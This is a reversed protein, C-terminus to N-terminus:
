WQAIGEAQKLFWNHGSHSTMPYDLNTQQVPPIANTTAPLLFQPNPPASFSCLSNGTPFPLWQVM